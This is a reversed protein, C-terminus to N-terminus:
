SRQGASQGHEAYVDARGPLPGMSSTAFTTGYTNQAAVTFYYNGLATLGSVQANFAGDNLTGMPISNAWSAPVTGGDTAGWYITVSAGGGATGDNILQGILYDSVRRKSFPPATPSSRSARPSSPPSLAPCTPPMPTLPTSACMISTGITLGTINASFTGPISAPTTATVSNPWANTADGDDKTDYFFTLATTAPDTTANLIGNLTATTGLIATAPSADTFISNTPSAPVAAIGAAYNAAVDSAGLAETHVRLAAIAGNFSSSTATPPLSGIQSFIAPYVSEVDFNLTHGASNVLTGDLYASETTGDYTIVGYHWISTSPPTNGPNWSLSNADNHWAATAAASFEGADFGGAPDYLTWDFVGRPNATSGVNDFWCEVTYHSNAQLQSPTTFSAIMIRTGAPAEPALISVSGSTLLNMVPPNTGGTYGTAYVSNLISNFTGGLTGYNTWYILNTEGAISSMGTATNTGRTASLDILLQGAVNVQALASSSFLVALLPVLALVAFLRARCRSFFNSPPQGGSLRRLCSETAIAKNNM